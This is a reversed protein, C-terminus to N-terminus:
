FYSIENKCAMENGKTIESYSCSTNKINEYIKDEPSVYFDESITISSLFYFM